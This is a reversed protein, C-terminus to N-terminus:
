QARMRATRTIVLSSPLGPYGVLTNFTRTGTVSVYIRIVSPSTCTATCSGMAVETLTSATWCACFRSAIANFGAVDSAAATAAAQMGSTDASNTVSSAGYQVGARVAHTVAMSSYFARGYDMAGFLLVLLLPLVLALEVLAGGCDSSWAGAGTKRCGPQIAATMM